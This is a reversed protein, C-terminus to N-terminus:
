YTEIEFIVNYNMIISNNISVYRTLERNSYEITYRNDIQVCRIISIPRPIIEYRIGKCPQSNISNNTKTASTPMAAPARYRRLKIFHRIKHEPKPNLLSYLLQVTKTNGKEMYFHFGETHM